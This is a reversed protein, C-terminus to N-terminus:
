IAGAKRCSEISETSIGFEALVDATHAGLQPPQRFDVDREGDYRVPRRQGTMKRGAEELEFFPDLYAFHADSRIEDVRYIPAFPVDESDLRAIWESRPRTLFTKRAEAGLATYNEVRAKRNSFRPDGLLDARDMARVFAEWFKEPSSMHIGIQKGDACTLTFAQSLSGRTYPESIEGSRFYRAMPEIAYALMAEIMNVEVHRGKGTRDREVLAGLVGYAAFLGTTMDCLAPGAIRTEEGIQSLSLWGSLSQGVTDFAPRHAYPGDAGFGTIECHVLRPNLMHLKEWGVGLNEAVGPRANLVLVDAKALIAKLIEAGEPSTYDFAASRKNWNHAEFESSSTGDAFKRFPDGAGPKEVKIVDAGLHALLMSAYPGTIFAGLEIVKIGALVKM